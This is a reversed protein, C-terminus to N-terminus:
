AASPWEQNAGAGNRGGRKVEYLAIDARRLLAALSARSRASVAIGISVSLAGGECRADACASRIDQAIAAAGDRDVGPLLIAFEDGGQRGVVFKGREAARALVDAVHKLVNDGFGHGFNDNLSKFHDIDCMLVAMPRADARAEDLAAQAAHDFGRRNLLGTLQDTRALTELENRALTLAQLLRSSRYSVLPCILAPVFISLFLSFQRFQAPTITPGGDLVFRMLLQSLGLSGLIAIATVIFVRRFVQARTTMERVM